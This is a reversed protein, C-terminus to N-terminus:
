EVPRSADGGSNSQADINEVGTGAVHGCASDDFRKLLRKGNLVRGIGIKPYKRGITYDVRKVGVVQLVRLWDRLDDFMFVLYDHHEFAQMEMKEIGEGSATEDEVAAMRALEGDSFGALELDHGAAQLEKLVNELAKDDTESLEALHNDAVMDALEAAESAYPQYDVPVVSCGLLLAAELRGHGRTILGSRASITIPARWGNGSIVTAIASIQSTPHSNPNKPNRKAVLSTTEVLASYACHIEGAQSIQADPM